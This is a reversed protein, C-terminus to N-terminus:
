EIIQSKTMDALMRVDTFGLEDRLLVLAAQAKEITGKIPM